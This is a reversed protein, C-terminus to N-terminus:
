TIGAVVWLARSGSDLFCRSTPIEPEPVEAYHTPSFPLLAAQRYLLSAARVMVIWPLRNDFYLAKM